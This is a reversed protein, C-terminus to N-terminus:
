AFDRFLDNSKKRSKAYASNLSTALSLSLCVQVLSSARGNLSILLSRLSRNGQVNSM